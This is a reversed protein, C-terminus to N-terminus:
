FRSWVPQGGATYVVINGDSQMQLHNKNGTGLTGTSWIPNGAGNYLVLNGDFQMALWCNSGQGSTGSSWVAAGTDVRREVLNCDLQVKLRYNGNGSELYDDAFLKYTAPLTPGYNHMLYPWADGTWNLVNIGLYHQYNDRTDYYHYYLREKNDNTELFVGQGGASQVFDHGELVLTGGGQLLPTGTRDTFPGTPSTSRGVRINYTTTSRNLCCSGWSTFLYYYIGRRYVYAAEIGNSREALHAPAPPSAPRKGTAPDLVISYIGRNWSGFTLYWSGGPTVVLNPDIANYLSGTNSQIVIGQDQWNGPLGTTSTALGIASHQSGWSSASYYMWYKGNRYSVDPAWIATPNDPDTYTAWWAPETGVPFAPLPATYTVRDTSTRFPIGAGTAFLGYRPSSPRILMSPDHAKADGATAQPPPYPFNNAPLAAAPAANVLATCAGVLGLAGYRSLRFWRERTRRM